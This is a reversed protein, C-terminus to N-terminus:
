AAVAAATTEREIEEIPIGTKASVLQLVRKRTRRSRVSRVPYVGTLIKSVTATSTQAELAIARQTIDLEELQEQTRTKRRMMTPAM